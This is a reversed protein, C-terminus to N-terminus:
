KQQLRFWEYEDFGVRSINNGFQDIIKQALSFKLETVWRYIDGNTSEFIFNKGDNISAYIRDYGENYMKFKKLVISNVKKFGMTCNKNLKSDFFCVKNKQCDEVLPIFLLPENKKLRVSDCRPQICLYYNYIISCNCMIRCHESLECKSENEKELAIITGLTLYPLYTESYYKTNTTTLATFEQELNNLAEDTVPFNIFHRSYDSKKKMRDKLSKSFEQENWYNEIGAEVLKILNCEHLNGEKLEIKNNFKSINILKKISDLNICKKINEFNIAAVIEDKILECVFYEADEPNPISIRHSIYNGDFEKKFQSIIDFTHNRISTIAALTANSLLGSVFNAFERICIDPLETVSSSLLYEPDPSNTKYILKIKVGKHIISYKNNRFETVLSETKNKGILDFLTDPIEQTIRDSGSYIIILKLNNEKLIKKIVEQTFIGNKDNVSLEWDLILIDAKNIVEYYKNMFEELRSQKQTETYFCSNNIQPKIATFLIQKEIFKNTLEFIDLEKNEISSIENYQQKIETQNNILNRYEVNPDIISEKSVDYGNDNYNPQDDISVATRLFNKVVERSFKDFENDTVQCM